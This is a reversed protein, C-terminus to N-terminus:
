RAGNRVEKAAEKWISRVVEYDGGVSLVLGEVARACVSVFEENHQELAAEQALERAARLVRRVARRRVPSGRHEWM